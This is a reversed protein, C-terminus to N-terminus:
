VNGVSVAPGVSADKPPAGLKSLLAAGAAVFSVVTVVLWGVVPILGVVFVIATGLAMAGFQSKRGAFLPLRDGLWSVFATMGVAMLIFVLLAAIPILPLGIVTVALLIALPVMALLMVLGALASRGPRRTLQDRVRAYREPLFTIVLLGVLLLVACKVLSAVIGLLVLQWAPVEAEGGGAALQAVVSELPGGIGVRDGLVVAGPQVDVTGGMSVVDGEVRATPELTVPGGLSVADGRVTGAVTLPGGVAVAEDVVEGAEVRLPEGFRVLETRDGADRKRDHKAPASVPPAIPAEAAPLPEAATEPAPTPATPTPAQPPPEPTVVLMGGRIAARLGAVELLTELAERGPRKKMALTLRQGDDAAGSAGVFDLGLKGALAALAADATAGRVTLTVVPWSPLDGELRSPAAAPLPAAAPSPAPTAEAEGAGCPFPAAVLGALAVLAALAAGAQSQTRM